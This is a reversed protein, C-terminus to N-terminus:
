KFTRLNNAYSLFLLNPNYLVYPTLFIRKGTLAEVHRCQLHNDIYAVLTHIKKSGDAAAHMSVITFPYREVDQLLEDSITINFVRGGCEKCRISTMGKIKNKISENMKKTLYEGNELIKNNTLTM